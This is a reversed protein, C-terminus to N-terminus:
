YIRKCFRLVPIPARSFFTILTVYDGDTHTWNATRSDKNKNALQQLAHM